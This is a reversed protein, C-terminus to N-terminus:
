LIKGNELQWAHSTGDIYFLCMAVFGNFPM